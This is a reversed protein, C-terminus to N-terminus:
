GFRGLFGVLKRTFPGFLKPLYFGGAARKGIEVLTPYAVVMNALAGVSLRKSLALVWPQILEGAQAGVITVGLIRGSHTVIVKIFGDTAREAVARDNEAYPWRLIRIKGHKGRAAAEDLGVSALEPDTFTVRPIAADSATAPLRFLANKIVIGAHYNAVHTFQLGGAADGIVFVHKNSSRLRADVTVGRKTYEVGAAELNLGDVNPKRGAAVLLHPGAIREGGELLVAVGKGDREVSAIRVQERVAVGDRRLATLVIRAADPDDRGLTVAAELVTVRAGLRAHAQALELGIPGGGIIVLHSPLVRNEFVTENTLYPVDALGPIAPIAPSSGTAIVFRRARIRRGGAEIEGRGTFRAAALVVEVGLAQFRRVSDHPEIEAIAHHVHDMVAAFDVEVKAHIGFAGAARAEAARKAAAILAKSPVCGYNLCDGGMKGREVLVVRAGMQSAGAAVSLGGSGAGIICIDCDIVDSV